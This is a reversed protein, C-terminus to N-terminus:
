DMFSVGGPEFHETGAAGTDFQTGSIGLLWIDAFSTGVARSM